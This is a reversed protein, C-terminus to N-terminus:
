LLCEDLEAHPDLLEAALRLERGPEVPERHVRAAVDGDSLSGTRAFRQELVPARRRVGVGGTLRIKGLKAALQVAAKRLDSGLLRTDDHELVGEAQGELLNRSDRVHRDARRLAVGVTPPIMQALLERVDCSTARRQSARTPSVM